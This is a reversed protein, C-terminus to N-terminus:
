SCRSTVRRVPSPTTRATSRQSRPTTSLCRTAGKRKAASTLAQQSGIHGCPFRDEARALSRGHRLRGAPRHISGQLGVTLDDQAGSRVTQDGLVAELDNLSRHGLETRAFREERDLVDADIGRDATPEVLAAVVQRRDLDTLRDPRVADADHDRGVVSRNGSPRAMMAITPHCCYRTSAASSNRGTVITSSFTSSSSVSLTMPCTPRVAYRPTVSTAWGCGPSVNRTDAAAPPTPDIAPWIPLQAACSTTPMAPPGVLHLHTTSSSPNSAHM